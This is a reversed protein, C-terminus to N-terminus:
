PRQGSRLSRGSRSSAVGTRRNKQRPQRQPLGPMSEIRDHTWGSRHPCPQIQSGAQLHPGADKQPLRACLEYSSHTSSACLVYSLHAAHVRFRIFSAYARGISSLCPAQWSSISVAQWARGNFHPPSRVMIWASAFVFMLWGSDTM